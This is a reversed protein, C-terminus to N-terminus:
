ERLVMEWLTLGLSYIDNKPSIMRQDDNPNEKAIDYQPPSLYRLTGRNFTGSATSDAVLTVCGFDGLKLSFDEKLFINSPKIDRHTLKRESLYALADFLQSAGSLIWKMSYTMKPDFIVEELDGRECYEMTIGFKEEGKQDKDQIGLYKVINPHDLPELIQCERKFLTKTREDPSLPYKIVIKGCDQLRVSGYSGKGIDVGNRAM